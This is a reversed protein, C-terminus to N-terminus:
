QEVQDPKPGIGHTVRQLTTLMHFLSRNTFRPAAIIVAQAPGTTFPYSAERWSPNFELARELPAQSLMPCNIGVWIGPPM